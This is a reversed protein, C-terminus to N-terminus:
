IEEAQISACWCWDDLNYPKGVLAPIDAAPDQGASPVFTYAEPAIMASPCRIGTYGNSNAKNGFQILPVASPNVNLTAAITMAGVFRVNSMGILTAGDKAVIGLDTLSVQALGDWPQGASIPGGTSVLDIIIEGTAADWTARRPYIINPRRGHVLVQSWARGEYQGLWRYGNNDPHASNVDIVPYNPAVPFFGNVENVLRLQATGVHLNTADTTMQGSTQSLFFAPPKQGNAFIAEIDANINNRLQQVGAMYSAVTPHAGGTGNAYDQEGQTFKVLAVSFEEGVFSAHDRIQTLASIIRNYYNPTAGKSLSALSQGGVGCTVLIFPTTADEDLGVSALWQQRLWYTASIASGEGPVATDPGIAALAASNLITGADNHAVALLPYIAGSTLPGYTTSTSNTPRCAEGLSYVHTDSYGPQATTLPPYGRSGRDLSQGYTLIINVKGRVIQQIMPLLDNQRAQSFAVNAADRAAYDTGTAPASTAGGDVTGGFGYRDRLDFGPTNTAELYAGDVQLGDQVSLSRGRPGGRWSARSFGFRDDIGLPGAGGARFLDDGSRVGRTRLMVDDGFTVGDADEGARFRGIWFGSAIPEGRYFGLKPFGFRDYIGDAMASTVNITDVLPRVLEDSTISNVYVAVSEGSIMAHDYILVARAGPVAVSFRENVDTALLGAEASPYFPGRAQLGTAYTGALQAAAEADSRELTAQQAASVAEAAKVEATAAFPAGGEAGWARIKDRALEPIAEPIDGLDKLRQELGPGMAGHESIVYTDAMAIIQAYPLDLWSPEADTESPLEASIKVWLDGTWRSSSAGHTTEIVDFELLYGAGREHILNVVDAAIPATVYYGDGSLRMQVPDVLPTPLIRRRAVWVFTRGTLNQPSGDPYPMPYHVVKANGVFLNLPKVVTRFSM